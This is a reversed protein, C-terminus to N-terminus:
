EKPLEEMITKAILWCTDSNLEEVMLIVECQRTNTKAHVRMRTSTGVQEYKINLWWIDYRGNSVLYKRIEEKIMTFLTAGKELKNYINVGYISNLKQKLKIDETLENKM